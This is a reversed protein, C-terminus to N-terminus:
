TSLVHELDRRPGPQDRLADRRPNPVYDGHVIGVRHDSDQAPPDRLRVKRVNLADAAVDVCQRIRRRAEVYHNRTVYEVKHGIERSRETLQNSHESGAPLQDCRGEAVVLCSERPEYRSCERNEAM